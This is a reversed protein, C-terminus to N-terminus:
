LGSSKGVGERDRNGNKSSEIGGSERWRKSDEQERLTSQEREIEQQTKSDM